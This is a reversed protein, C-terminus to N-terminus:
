PALRRNCPRRYAGFELATWPQKRALLAALMEERSWDWTGILSEFLTTILIKQLEPKAAELLLKGFGVDRPKVFGTLTNREAEYTQLLIEAKEPATQAEEFATHVDQGVHSERMLAIFANWAM